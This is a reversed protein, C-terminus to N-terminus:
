QALLKKDNRIKKIEFVVLALLMVVTIPVIFQFMVKSFVPLADHQTAGLILYITYAVYYALFFIGNWRSIRFGVFFVPFCAIAVALMVPLDFNMISPAVTIGSPSFIGSLGGVALINFVNSGVVNGVAIDREGRISAMVSTAVEPLSTGAAVITLGIITESLGLHRAITIASEVLFKSGLVLLGLGLLIWLVNM